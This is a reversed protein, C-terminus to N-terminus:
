AQGGRGLVQDAMARGLAEVEDDLAARGEEELTRIKGRAEDIRQAVENRASELRGERDRAAEQMLEERVGFAERRAEQMQDEYQKMEAGHRALSDEEAKEGERIRREREDMVALLPRFLFKKLWWTLGTFIVILFLVHRLVIHIPGMQYEWHYLDTLWDM